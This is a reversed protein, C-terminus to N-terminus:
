LSTFKTGNKSSCGTSNLVQLPTRVGVERSAPDDDDYIRKIYLQCACSEVVCASSLLDLLMCASFTEYNTRFSFVVKVFSVKL